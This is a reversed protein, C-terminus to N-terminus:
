IKLQLFVDLTQALICLYVDDVCSLFESRFKLDLVLCLDFVHMINNIMSLTWVLFALGFIRTLGFASHELSCSLVVFGVLFRMEKYMGLFGSM